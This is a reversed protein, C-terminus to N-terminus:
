WMVAPTWWASGTLFVTAGLGSAGLAGSGLFAGAGAGALGSCCFFGAGSGAGLLAGAGAEELAGLFVSPGAGGVM